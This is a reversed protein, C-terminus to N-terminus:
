EEGAKRRFIKLGLILISGMIAPLILNIFWVTISAFGIGLTNASFLGMLRISIEGRLGVEVLTISPIVAMALFVVSTVAMITLVPVHVDFLYFVLVYQLLFVLYRLASLFVIRWLLRNNFHQLAEVLYLYRQARFWRRFLGTTGSVNFYVLALVGGAVMLGYVLFRYWIRVGPFNDLWVNKLVMLGITGALVTILLQALSGVLTVSIARLRNGEPLYMMRGLYEGVRNPMTVSISVGSLVAKFADRFGLSHISSVSAKWKWAELGWNVPVLLLAGILYLVEASQLSSRISLWSDELHPQHMIQRYISFALWIFLAPGM